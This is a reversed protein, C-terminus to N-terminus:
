EAATKKGTREDDEKMKQLLVVYRLVCYCAPRAFSRVLASISAFCFIRVRLVLSTDHILVTAFSASVSQYACKCVCESVRVAM